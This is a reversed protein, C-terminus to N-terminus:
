YDEANDEAEISRRNRERDKEIQRGRGGAMGGKRGVKLM